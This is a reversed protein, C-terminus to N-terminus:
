ERHLYMPFAGSFAVEATNRIFLYRLNLYAFLGVNARMTPCYTGDVFEGGLAVSWFFSGAQIEQYFGGKKDAFHYVLGVNVGIDSVVGWSWDEIFVGWGTGIVAGPRSGFEIGLRASPAMLLDAGHAGISLLVISLCTSAKM